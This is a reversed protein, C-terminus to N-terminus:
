PMAQAIIPNGNVLTHSGQQAAVTDTSTGNRSVIHGAQWYGVGDAGGADLILAASVSGWLAGRAAANSEDVFAVIRNSGTDYRAVFLGSRYLPADTISANLRASTDIDGGGKCEAPPAAEECLNVAALYQANLLQAIVGARAAQQDGEIDSRMMVPVAALVSFLVVMVMALM